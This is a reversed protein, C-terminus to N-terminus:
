TMPFISFSKFKIWCMNKTKLVTNEDNTEWVLVADKNQKNRADM